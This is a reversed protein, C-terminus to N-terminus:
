SGKKKPGAYEQLAADISQLEEATLEVDGAAANEEAQQPNRAGCLAHTLGPQHVTWAIVLQALTLKRRQAIPRLKELLADSKKRFRPSFRITTRRQDGEAFERDPGIKGTLLGRALPSYGLMAVNHERCYALQETEIQRDLMSYLEQDTDLPGAQAYEAMQDPTANCVGVARIKGEQKLEQLCGMTEAIPTTSEQWHPQYLDIYDTQLRKLSLEVERRISDPTLCIHITIHGAPNPGASDSTFKFEGVTPDCVMSCKTALVVKDRRDRIAKGVISESRGFGYIPATDILNVGADIGAHIADISQREDTGGWMWGGIAWAGLGVVSAEIGSQGLPRTRM